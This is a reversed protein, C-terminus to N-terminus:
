HRGFSCRSREGGIRQSMPGGRNFFGGGIPDFRRRRPRFRSLEGFFLRGVEFTGVGGIQRRNGQGVPREVFGCDARRGRRLLRNSDIWRDTGGGGTNV